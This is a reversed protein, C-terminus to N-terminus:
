QATVICTYTLSAISGTGSYDTGNWYNDLNLWRTRNQFDVTWGLSMIGAQGSISGLDQYGPNLNDLFFIEMNKDFVSWVVTVLVQTATGTDFAFIDDMDSSDMSGTIKVTMGPVLSIGLPVSDTFLNFDNNPEMTTEDYVGVNAQLASSGVNNTTDGDEACSVRVLMFYDGYSLPWSGNWPVDGFAPSPGLAPLGSGSAILTDSADITGDTSAYVKWSVTQSATGAVSGNNSYRFTGSVPQNPIKAGPTVSVSAVRYDVIAPVGGQVTVSAEISKGTKDTVRIVAVCATSPAVYVGASDVSGTGPGSVVTYLYPGVGGSAAFDIANGAPVVTASPSISLAKGQPGDLVDRLEYPTCSLLLVSVSLALFVLRNVRGGRVRDSERM